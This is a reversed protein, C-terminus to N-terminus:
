IPLMLSRLDNLMSAKVDVSFTKCGNEDALNIMYQLLCLPIGTALCYAFPLPGDLEMNIALM